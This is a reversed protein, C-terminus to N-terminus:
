EETRKHGTRHAITKRATALRSMITGIPVDLVDAAERYSSGEVYVLLVALRQSEPLDQIVTFVERALINTEVSPKYDELDVEEVLVLGQGRRTKASRLDNLWLRRAITFLWRDLSTGPEFKDSQELARACSAQALDDAADRRKTLVYCFRWLRPYLSPLGSSM